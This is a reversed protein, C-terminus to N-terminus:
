ASEANVTEGGGAGSVALLAAIAAAIKDASIRPDRRKLLDTVVAGVNSTDMVMADPNKQNSTSADAAPVVKQNQAELAARGAEQAVSTQLGARVYRITFENNQWSHPPQTLVAMMQSESQGVFNVKATTWEALARNGNQAVFNTWEARAKEAAAKSPQESSIVKAISPAAATKEAVPNAQKLIAERDQALMDNAMRRAEAFASQDGSEMRASLQDMAQLQSDAMPLMAPVRGRTGLVHQFPTWDKGTADQIVWDAGRAFSRMGGGVNNGAWRALRRASSPHNIDVVEGVTWALRDAAEARDKLNSYRDRLDKPTANNNNDYVHEAQDKYYRQALGLAMKQKKGQDVTEQGTKNMQSAAAVSDVMIADACDTNMRNQIEQRQQPTQATKLEAQYAVLKARQDKIEPLHEEMDNAAEYLLNQTQEFAQQNAPSGARERLKVNTTAETQIIKKANVAELVGMPKGVLAAEPGGPKFAPPPAATGM